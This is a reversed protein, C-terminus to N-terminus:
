SPLLIQETRAGPTYQEYSRFWGEDSSIFFFLGGGADPAGLPDVAGAPVQEVSTDLFLAFETNPSFSYHFVARSTVHVGGTAEQSWWAQSGSRVGDFWASGAGDATVASCSGMSTISCEGQTTGKSDFVVARGEVEVLELTAWPTIGDDPDRDVLEYRLGEYSSATRVQALAGCPLGLVLAALTCALKGSM